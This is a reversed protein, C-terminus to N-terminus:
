IGADNMPLIVFVSGPTSLNNIFMNVLSNIILKHVIVGTINRQISALFTM